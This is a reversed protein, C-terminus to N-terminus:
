ITNAISQFTSQIYPADSQMTAGQMTPPTTSPVSSAEGTQIESLYPNLGAQKLRLSQQLPTNYSNQLNWMKENWDRNDYYLQKNQENTERAIQLNTANTDKNAKQAMKGGIFSSVVNGIATWM